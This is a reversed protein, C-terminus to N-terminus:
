EWGENQGQAKLAPNNDMENQPYPWLYDKPATFVKVGGIPPIVYEAIRWRLLDFYRQHEFAFEWRRENRIYQRMQEQTLGAPCAAVGARRRIENVATYVATNAGAAENEAEAYMLLVEAYRIMYYNQPGGNYQTSTLMFYKRPAFPINNTFAWIKKGGPTIDANTLVSARLRLDRGEYPKAASFTPSAPGYLASTQIPKGDTCLFSNVLNPTPRWNAQPVLPTLMTDIRISFSEGNDIGGSVFNIEFLSEASFEGDLTFLADFRPFLSYAYPASMLPKLTAAAKAPENNFLYYKGLLAVAAGRGIRGKEAGPINVPLHPINDELDKEMAAVIATKEAAQGGEDFANLPELYFPVNGWLTTLDLYAYARLFSAEAIIRARAESSIGEEPMDKVRAILLNARNIVTYYATWANLVRATASTHFSSEIEAWNAGSITIANDTLNDFERYFKGAFQNHQFADLVGNLGMLADKEDRWFNRETLQNPNSIEINKSCGWGGLVASLLFISVFLRNIHLTM